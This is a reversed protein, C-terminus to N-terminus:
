IAHLASRASSTDHNSWVTLIYCHTAKPLLLWASFRFSALILKLLGIPHIQHKKLFTLCAIQMAWYRHYWVAPWPRLYMYVLHGATFSLLNTSYSVLIIKLIAKRFFYRISEMPIILSKLRFKTFIESQRANLRNSVTVPLRIDCIRLTTISYM